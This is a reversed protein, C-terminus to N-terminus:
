LCLKDSFDQHGRNLQCKQQTLITLGLTWNNNMYHAWAIKKKSKISDDKMGDYIAEVFWVGDKGDLINVILNSCIDKTCDGWKEIILNRAIEQSLVERSKEKLEGDEFYLYKSKGISPKITFNEWPYRDSYNIVIEGKEIETTQPAIRDGIFISNTGMYGNEKQIAMAIYYFIGTEGGNHTLLVVTDDLSDNNVDGVTNWADFVNVIDKSALSSVIEKEAKGNELTFLKKNIVYSSYMPNFRIPTSKPCMKEQDISVFEEVIFAKKYNAGFGYIPPNTFKGKLTGFVPTYPKTGTMIKNYENITEGLAPSNGILWSDTNDECLQFSRVEHGIVIYGNINSANEQTNFKCVPVCQMTCIKANVDHRCASECELFKGNNENCWTKEAYECESHEMLWVSENGLCEQAIMDLTDISNNEPLYNLYFALSVSIIVLTIVFISKKEM